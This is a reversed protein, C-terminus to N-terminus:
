RFLSDPSPVQPMGIPQSYLYAGTPYALSGLLEERMARLRAKQADTLSHGVAVFASALECAIQGDLEGYHQMLGLVTAQDATGGALFIRLETAIQERAAVIELLLPRQVGVLGTIRAAQEPDLEALLADGLDGTLNTPIAYSPDSMARIDKLYFSGFYTGHREPCFYVDAEVSGSYWSFLDAAYTMVAVKVTRDLSRLDSPESADPWELMGRGVMADLYARQAESLTGILGGMARARDYSIRGDLAYLEACYAAVAPESLGTTQGPLTGSLLRRFADMLVFRRYAFEEISSAQSRALAVLQARQNATLTNLVNLAASTLFDGAHGMQSPDNDRLYQFGWFDAVKGPPFFSDAGLNGTLFAMADFAITMGQARDSIAQETNYAAVQTGAGGGAQQGDAPGRRPSCALQGDVTECVGSETGKEWSFTCAAGDALGACAAMAAAPPPGGGAPPADVEATTGGPRVYTVHLEATGLTIGKMAALLADRDVQAAPVSLAPRASLAYITYVYVKEGPGQSCPPAYETRGNVSNNGLTGVAAGNTPLGTVSAPIDYLVWYWHIDQPGATHHMILAYSQTKAPAGQWSLPLTAAGGDCTYEAPLAGNDTVASSTLTFVTEEADTGKSDSGTKSGAMAAVLADRGCATMGAMLGVVACLVGTARAIRNM